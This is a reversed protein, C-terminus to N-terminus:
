QLLSASVQYLLGRSLQANGIVFPGKLVAPFGRSLVLGLILEMALARSERIRAPAGIKGRSAHQVEKIIDGGAGM